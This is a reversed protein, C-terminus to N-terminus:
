NNDQVTVQIYINQSSFYTTEIPIYLRFLTKKKKKEITAQTNFPWRNFHTHLVNQPNQEQTQLYRWFTDTRSFIYTQSNKKKQEPKHMTEKTNTNSM